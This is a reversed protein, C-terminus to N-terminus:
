LWPWLPSPSWGPASACSDSRDELAPRSSRSCSPEDSSCARFSFDTSHDQASPPTATRRAAPKASPSGPRRSYAQGPTSLLPASRRVGVANRAGYVRNITMSSVGCSQAALASIVAGRSDVGPCLTSAGGRIEYRGHRLADWHARTVAFRSCVEIQAFGNRMNERMRECNGPTTSCYVKRM